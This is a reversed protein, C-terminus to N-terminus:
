LDLLFFMKVSYRGVDAMGVPLHKLIKRNAGVVVFDFVFCCFFFVLRVPDLDPLSWLEVVRLNPSCFM